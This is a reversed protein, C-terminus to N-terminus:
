ASGTAKAIAARAKRVADDLELNIGIPYFAEFLTLAELLDPSAAILRANAVVETGTITGGADVRAILRGNAARITQVAPRVWPGPTHKTAM